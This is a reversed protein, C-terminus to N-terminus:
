LYHFIKKRRPKKVPKGRKWVLFGTVSLFPGTLGTICYLLKTWIGGYQGFHLPILTSSLKTQLDAEQIRTVGTIEGSNFNASIKNYFESYYFPDDDFLGYVILHGEPNLPLRVYTPSFEPYEHRIEELLNKVPAKVVPTKPAAPPNLGAAAVTWSLFVGTVVLVLNFLLAWTGVIRHLSSYFTRKSKHLVPTRFTFTKIISKRYLYIGTLLSFLFLVGIIFVLIRGAPGVQFSYHFKLLWRTFTTLENIEKIIEGTSPHVFVFLRETPKRLNFILAENEEFHMLRTDWHPYKEQITSVGLDINLGKYDEVETYEQWQFDEIDHQFVLIAGSVGMLILFLGAILGAYSHYKLIKRNKM